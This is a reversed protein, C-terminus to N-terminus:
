EKIEGLLFRRHDDKPHAKQFITMGRPNNAYLVQVDLDQFYKGLKPWWDGYPWNHLDHYTDGHNGLNRHLDHIVILGGPVVLDWFRKFEDFRFQPESDLFAIDVEKPLKDMPVELSSELICDIRHNLELDEWLEEAWEKFEPLVEMTTIHGKDNEDMAQAMYMSSIGLHTGTEIVHRPKYLKVLAHLFEGTEVEVGGSNFMYYKDKTSTVEDLIELRKTRSILNDTVLSVM